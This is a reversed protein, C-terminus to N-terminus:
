AARVHFKNNCNTDPWIPCRQMHERELMQRNFKEDPSEELGIQETERVAAAVADSYRYGGSLNMLLHARGEAKRRLEPTALKAFHPAANQPGPGEFGDLMRQLHTDTYLETNQHTNM